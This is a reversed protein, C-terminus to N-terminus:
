AGTEIKEDAPESSSLYDAVGFIIAVRNCLVPHELLSFSGFASHHGLKIEAYDRRGRRRQPSYSPLLM